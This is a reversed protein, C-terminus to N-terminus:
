KNNGAKVKRCDMVKSPDLAPCFYADAGNQLIFYMGGAAVTAASKIEYGDALLTEISEASASSFIFIMVVGLIKNM